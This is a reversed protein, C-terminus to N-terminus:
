KKADKAKADTAGKEAEGDKEKAKEEVKVEDVGKPGQEDMAKLQEETLPANVKVIVMDPSDTSAVGAPMTLDKVHIMNEFTELGVLSVDIHSVLDKPLCTINLHNHAKVLTGGLSKVAPAEGVFHLEVTAHMEVGMRIQRLDVHSIRRSVPDFQVAQILVKTPEKDGEVSFDLLTSEGAEKYLKEFVNYQFAVSVPEIEPGYVVGPIMGEERTSDAKGSERKKSSLILTM